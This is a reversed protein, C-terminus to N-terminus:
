GRDAGERRRRALLIVLGGIVIVGGGIGIAWAMTNDPAGTNSLDPPTPGVFGNTFLIHTGNESLIVDERVGGQTTVGAVTTSTEAAGRTTVETIECSAGAPLDAVITQEGGKVTVSRTETTAGAVCVVEFDFSLARQEDSLPYQSTSRLAKEIVLDGIGYTNTFEILTAPAPASGAGRDRIAIEASLGDVAPNVGDTVAISRGIEGFEGVVPGVAPDTLESAVCDAGVPVGPVTVSQRNAPDTGPLNGPVTLLSYAGMDLEVRSGFGDPVTCSLAVTFTAPAFRPDGVIDKSVVLDATKVTVGATPPAKPLPIATGTVDRAMVGSQNWAVRPTQFDALTPQLGEAHQDVVANSTQFQVEIEQGPRLPTATLDLIVRFGAIDADIGGAAQFAGLEVWGGNAPNTTANSCTPDDTWRNPATSGTSFCAAPNETVQITAVAGAPLDILQISESDIVPRFNSNRSFGYGALMKDGPRPLMDVIVMDKLPNTGINFYELKWSDVAGVATYAICPSRTYDDATWNAADCAVGTPLKTTSNALSGGSVLFEGDTEVIEGNVTKLGNVYTGVLPEVYNTNSCENANAPRVPAQGFDTPQTCTAFPQTSFVSVSNTARQGSTLGPQLILGLKITVTEGPQMRSGDPWDFTLSSGDTAQTVTVLAPDVTIGDTRSSEFSVAEGDWRLAAPLNDVVSDIPLLSSGTNTFSLTWELSDLPNVQHNGTDRPARKIVRIANSGTSFNVGSSATDGATETASRMALTSATNPERAQTAWDITADARLKVTFPMTATGWSSSWSTAGLPFFGADARDFITRVGIITALDGTFDSFKTWNTGDITVFQTRQNADTPNTGTGFSVFEFKQWFAATTDEIRLSKLPATSTGPTATLTVTVPAQPAAEYITTANTGPLTNTVSITKALLVEIGANTLNVQANADDKLELNPAVILDQGRAAATNTVPIASGVPGGTVVAGSVRYHSRLQVDLYMTLADNAVIRSGNTEPDTGQYTVSVGIVDSMLLNAAGAKIQAISFSQTIPTGSNYLWLEVTSQTEDIQSSAPFAAFSIGTVNFTNFHNATETAFTRGAFPSTGVAPNDTTTNMVADTVRIRSLKMLGTPAVTDNPDVASANSATLTYRTTPYYEQTIDGPKPAVLSTNAVTKALDVNPVGDVVFIQDSDSATATPKTTSKATFGFVNNVCGPDMGNLGLCNFQTSETVWKPNGASDGRARDRLQWDLVYSRDSASFSVGSGVAPAGVDGDAAAQQRATTNEGLVLRVGITNAQETASLTYGKFGTATMWDGSPAPVSTWTSGNNTLQVATVSDWKLQPDQTLTIPQIRTLNFAEFATNAGTASSAAPDALTVTEYGGASLGWTQKSSAAAGSQSMLMKSTPTTWSKVAWGDGPGRADTSRLGGTATASDDGTVTVNGLKATAQATVTNVYSTPAYPATTNPTTTAGSSRLTSRAQFEVNPKVNYTAPLGAANAYTYRVGTLASGGPIAIGGTQSATLTQFTSWNGSADRVEIKLSGGTPVQIPGVLGTIDYADWFTGPGTLQDTIVIQTPKTQSGIATATAPLQVVVRDGPFALTPSIKKQVDIEVDPAMVSLDAGADDTADDLGTRKGIVDVKNTMPGVTTGVPAFDESARLSYDIQSLAGPAISGTFTVEFATVNANNSASPLPSGPTIGSITEKVGGALTYTVTASTAGTPWVGTASASFGTFQLGSSFYAASSGAGPDKITLSNLNTSSPLELNKASLRAHATDGAVITLATMETGSPDLFAKGAEVEIQEPSVVLQAPAEDSVPPHGTATVTAGVENTVTYGGSISDGSTRNTSRQEVSFAQSITANPPFVGDYALKVGAINGNTLTSNWATWNWSTGNFYYVQVDAATAGAPLTTTPDGTFGAFDVFNFPNGAPLSTAGDPAFSTNSPDVLSLKQADINSKQIAGITISSPTGVQFGQATPTWTKTAEVDITVPVDVSIIAEDTITLSPRNEAGFTATNVLDEGNGAWTPTLNGPVKIQYILVGQDDASMGAGFGPINRSVNVSITRDALTTGVVGDASPSVGPMNLTVGTENGNVTASLGIIEWGAFEAPLVDTVVVPALVSENEVSFNVAYNVTSGPALDRVASQGNVTKSLQLQSSPGAAAPAAGPGVISVTSALTLVALLGAGWRRIVSNKAVSRLSLAMGGCAADGGAVAM